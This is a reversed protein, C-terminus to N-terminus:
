CAALRGIAVTMVVVVVHIMLGVFVIVCRLWDDLWGCDFM